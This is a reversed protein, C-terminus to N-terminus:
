LVFTSRLCVFSVTHTCNLVSCISVSLALPFSTIRICLYMPDPLSHQKAVYDLFDSLEYKHRGKKHKSIFTALQKQIDYGTIEPVSVLDAPPKFLDKVLPHTLIPGMQLDDFSKCEELVLIAKQLEYLSTISTNWCFCRIFENVRSYVMTFNSTCKIDRWTILMKGMMGIAKATAQKTVTVVIDAPLHKRKSSLVAIRNQLYVELKELAQVKTERRSFSPFSLQSTLTPIEMDPRVSSLAPLFTEEGPLVDQNPYRNVSSCSSLATGEGPPVGQYRNVSSHSPLAPLVPPVAQNPYTSVSSTSIHHTSTIPLQLQPRLEMRHTFQPAALIPPPVLSPPPPVLSPPRPVLSPPRPVLSPPPPRRPPPILPLRYGPSGFSQRVLPSHDHPVVQVAEAATSCKYFLQQLSEAKCYILLIKLNFGNEREFARKLEHVPPFSPALSSSLPRVLVDLLKAESISILRDDHRDFVDLKLLLDDINKFGFTRPSFNSRAYHQYAHALRDIRIKPQDQFLPLLLGLVSKQQCSLFQAM